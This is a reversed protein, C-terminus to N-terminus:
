TPLGAIFFDSTPSSVDQLAGQGEEGPPGVFGARPSHKSGGLKPAAGSQDAAEVTAVREGVREPASGGVEAIAPTPNHGEGGILSV